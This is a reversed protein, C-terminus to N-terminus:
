TTTARRTARSRRRRARRPPLRRRARRARRRARRRDRAEPDRARAADRIREQADTWGHLAFLRDYVRSAAYQGVAYALRRRAAEVDDDVSCILVGALAIESATAVRRRRARPSRPASSRTSTARAHVDPARRPRRRRPRRGRDHAPQRGRHLDAPARPVAAAHRRDPKLNVKYFRGEHHSRARPPAALAQAPRHRAGGDARRARRRRRRALEGDDHTTGNGLGLIIRGASLEDLDRAEAAWMLPTRGVGYAINTGIQVRETAAPSRRWRSRRRATTSSASGCALRLRRGRRPAGLADGAPSASPGSAPASVDIVGTATM